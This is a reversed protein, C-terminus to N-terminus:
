ITIYDNNSSHQTYEDTNISYDSVNSTCFLKDKYIIDTLNYITILYFRNEKLIFTDSAQIYYKYATFTADYQVETGDQEDKLILHTATDSRPIFNITQAEELPPLIIMKM